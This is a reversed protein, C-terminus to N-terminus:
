STNIALNMNNNNDFGFKDMTSNRKWWVSFGGELGIVVGVVGTLLQPLEKTSDSLWYIHLM